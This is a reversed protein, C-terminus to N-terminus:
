ALNAFAFPGFRGLKGCVPPRPRGAAHTAHHRHSPPASSPIRSVGAQPSAYWVVRHAPVEADDSLKSFSGRLPTPDAPDFERPFAPFLNLSNLM